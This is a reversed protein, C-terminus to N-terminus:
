MDVNTCTIMCVLLSCTIVRTGHLLKMSMMLGHSEMVIFPVRAMKIIRPIYVLDVPQILAPRHMALNYTKPIIPLMRILVIKMTPLPVTGMAM